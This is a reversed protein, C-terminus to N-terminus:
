AQPPDMSSSSSSLHQFIKAGKSIFKPNKNHKIAM